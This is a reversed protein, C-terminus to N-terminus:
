LAERAELVFASSEGDFRARGRTRTGGGEGDVAHAATELTTGIDVPADPVACLAAEGDAVALTVPEPSRYDRVLRAVTGVPAPGNCRVVFLGDYRGTRAEHVATHARAAHDRWVPLVELDAGLAAAVAHGPRERALADLVDAYGGATEFPGGVRPRLLREVAAGGRAVGAEDGAVALAVASALAREDALGAFRERTDSVSGSFPGHVLTSHALGEIPDAVPVALGPRRKLDAAALVQEDPDRGAALAGAVGLVAAGAPVTGSRLERVVAVATQSAPDGETGLTLDADPTPRGLAVTLDAGTARATSGPLAVVSTQYAVAERDLADALLGAAAVGDGTGAAVLRVFGAERLRAAIDSPTRADSQPTGATSM